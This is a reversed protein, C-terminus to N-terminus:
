KDQNQKIQLNTVGIMRKKKEGRCAALEKELVLNELEGALLQFVLINIKTALLVSQSENQSFHPM